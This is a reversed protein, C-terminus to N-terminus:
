LQIHAVELMCSAPGLRMSVIHLQEWVMDLTAIHLNDLMTVMSNRPMDRDKMAIDTGMIAIGMGTAMIVTGTGMITHREQVAIGTDTATGMDRTHTLSPPPVRSPTPPTLGARMSVTCRIPQPPLSPPPMRRCLTPALLHSVGAPLYLLPHSTMVKEIPDFM